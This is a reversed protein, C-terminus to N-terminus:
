KLTKKKKVYHFLKYIWSPQDAYSYQFVLFLDRFRQKVVYNWGSNLESCTTFCQYDM